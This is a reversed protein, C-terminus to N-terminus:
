VLHREQEILHDIWHYLAELDFPKELVELQRVAVAQEFSRNGKVASLFLAPVSALQQQARLRDYLEVGSMAPLTFDLLFLLPKLQALDELHRLAEDPTQLLLAQYPTGTEIVDRIMQATELDDEVVVIIGEAVEDPQFPFATDSQRM